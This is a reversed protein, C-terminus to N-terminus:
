RTQLLGRRDLTETLGHGLLPQELDIRLTVARAEESTEATLTAAAVLRERPIGQRELYRTAAAARATALGWNDVYPSDPAVPVGDAHGLVTIKAPTPGVVEAVEALPGFANPHLEASGTAFAIRRPIVVQLSQNVLGIQVVNDSLSGRLGRRMSEVLTTSDSALSFQAEPLGNNSTGGSTSFIAHPMGGNFAANMSDVVAELKEQDTQATAYLVTFFAFLLTIFDAYSVLWREHNEHEEHKKRRSM